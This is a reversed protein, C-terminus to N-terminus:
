GYKAAEYEARAHKQLWLLTQKLPLGAENIAQKLGVGVLVRAMLAAVTEPAM